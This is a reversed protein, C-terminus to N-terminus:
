HGHRAFLERQLRQWEEEQATWRREIDSRRPSSRVMELGFEALALIERWREAPTLRRFEEARARAEAHPDPFSLPWAAKEVVDSM